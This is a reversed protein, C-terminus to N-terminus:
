RLLESEIIYALQEVSETNLAGVSQLYQYKTRKSQWDEMEKYEPYQISQQEQESQQFQPRQYSQVGQTVALDKYWRGLNIDNLLFFLQSKANEITLILKERESTSLNGTQKRLLEYDKDISRQLDSAEQQKLLLITDLEGAKSEWFNCREDFRQQELQAKRRKEEQQKDILQQRQQERLQHTGESTSRLDIAHYVKLKESLPTSDILLPVIKKGSELAFTYEKKVWVSESAHQCWFIFITQAETLLEYLQQEWKQGPELSDKDFIIQSKSTISRLTEVIPKVMDYDASSYSIFTKRKM